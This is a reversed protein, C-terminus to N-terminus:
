NMKVISQAMQPGKHEEIFHGMDDFLHVNGALQPLADQWQDVVSQKGCADWRGFYGCAGINQGDPGWAPGIRAAMKQYYAHNDQRGATPDTYTYGHGWVRTQRVMRKSSRTNTKSRLMQSWVYEPEDPRIRRTGHRTLWKGAQILFRATSQPQAHSVVYAAVGGWLADPVVNPTRCWPLWAIPFNQYTLGDDPMPFITTNMLLLNRVRPPDEILAGVGIPGGWDHIVLTVNRLDLCRVLQLLNASHHMDVMEFSAQDSLGFGLHDMAVIRMSQGSEILASVIKRYTYSCEPNGHVFLVTREPEQEAVVHDFYFMRRGADPGEPLSFWRDSGTPCYDPPPMRLPTDTPISEIAM